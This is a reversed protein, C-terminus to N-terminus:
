SPKWFNWRYVGAYPSSVTWCTKVDQSVATFGRTRPPSALVRGVYRLYEPLGGRVPLLSKSASISSFAAGTFGRTRPPSQFSRKEPVLDVPLGGRVPLLCPGSHRGYAPRRYVGAYPSSVSM